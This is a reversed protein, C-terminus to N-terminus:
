NIRGSSPTANGATGSMCRSHPPTPRKRRSCSGFRGVRRGYDAAADLLATGIGHRRGEPAVFLDNLILIPAMSGSSFSPYLQTFGAAASDLL